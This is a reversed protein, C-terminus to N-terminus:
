FGFLGFIIQSTDQLATKLRGAFTLTRMYPYMAKKFGSQLRESITRVLIATARRRLVCSAM